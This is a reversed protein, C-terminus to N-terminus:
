EGTEEDKRRAKYDQWRAQAAIIDRQQRKKTGGGLLVVLRAGDLGFYIRYGPGWDIRRELVGAGVPKTESRNGAALRGLAVAVKAAAHSGLAAFWTRFPERGRGDRFVVLQPDPVAVISLLTSTVEHRPDV